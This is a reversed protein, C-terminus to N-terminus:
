RIVTFLRSWRLRNEQYSLWIIWAKGVVHDEPVFGWFRSDTSGNRNDGMMWYYNMKFTYTTTEQHNIFIKGNKVQLQNQEYTDIIRQYLPLVLTDIHITVGKQPIYLPGMQDQNWPYRDTDFPFVRGDWWDMLRRKIRAGLGRLTDVNAQTLNYIFETSDGTPRADSHIDLALMKKENMPHHNPMVVLYEAMSAPPIFGKKGNIYIMGDKIQLSDGPVAVCRKIWNERKDVPRVVPPLPYIKKLASDGVSRINPYYDVDNGQQDKLVTDGCPYNFVVVDNRQVGSLGPLRMYPWQVATSFAKTQKTFPLTHHTFPWALPTMPIRPGYSIKSVFLYDHVLLTREMSSSPIVYAEFIFTRIFTAAVVAFLAAETWERIRSKKRVSEEQKKRRFAFNM